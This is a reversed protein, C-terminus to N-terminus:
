IAQMWSSKIYQGFGQVQLKTLVQFRVSLESGDKVTELWQETASNQLILPKAKTLLDGFYETALM